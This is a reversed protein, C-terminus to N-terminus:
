RGYKRGVHDAIRAQHPGVLLARQGGELLVPLRDEVRRDGGMVAADDLQDAVAGDDFEAAHDIRHIAGDRHLARVAGKGILGQALRPDHQPDPDIEAVHDDLAVVNVAIADVDGGAQLRQGLGAANANGGDDVFADAIPDVNPELIGAVDADLIDVPRDADPFPMGLAVGSTALGLASLASLGNGFTAVADIAM